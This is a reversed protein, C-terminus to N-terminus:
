LKLRDITVRNQELEVKSEDVLMEKKALKRLTLELEKKM